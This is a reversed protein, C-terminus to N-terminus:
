QNILDSHRNQKYFCYFLELEPASKWVSIWLSFLWNWCLCECSSSTSKTPFTNGFLLSFVGTRNTATCWYNRHFWLSFEHNPFESHFRHSKKPQLLWYIHGSQLDLLDYNNTQGTITLMQVLRHDLGFIYWRRMATAKFLLKAILLRVSCWQSMIDDAATVPKKWHLKYVCGKQDIQSTRFTHTSSMQCSIPTVGVTQMDTTTRLEKWLLNASSASSQKNTMLSLFRPKLRGTIQWTQCINNALLFLEPPCQGATRLELTTPLQCTFM